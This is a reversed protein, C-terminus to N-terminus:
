EGYLRLSNLFRRRIRKRCEVNATLWAEVQTELPVGFINGNPDVIYWSHPADAGSQNVRWGESVILTPDFTMCYLEEDTGENCVKSRAQTAEEM